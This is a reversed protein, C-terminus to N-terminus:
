YSIHIPFEYPFTWVRITQFIYTGIACAAIKRFNLACLLLDIVSANNLGDYSCLHYCHQEVGKAM